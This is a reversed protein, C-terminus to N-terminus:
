TGQGNMSVFGFLAFFGLKQFAPELITRQLVSRENQQVGTQWPRMKRADLLPICPSFLLYYKKCYYV